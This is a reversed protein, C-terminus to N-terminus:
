RQPSLYLQSHSLLIFTQTKKCSVFEHFFEVLILLVGDAFLRIKKPNVILAALFIVRQPKM